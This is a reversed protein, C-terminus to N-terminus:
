AHEPERDQPTPEAHLSENPNRVLALHKTRPRTNLDELVSYARSNKHLQTVEAEADNLNGFVIAQTPCAQQCATLVEGDQLIDTERDGAMYANRADIKAKAIRQTCYTCKEMVGRMRVTVEPNFVMAKIANISNEPQADPMGLWPMPFRDGPSTSHFDFYNFRRVKYPCNNSCYRTGICRNYVMTNLGETDHVTAAVPCVQECPANECHVCLMPQFVLEPNPDDAAGKFYRDIRIWHMERSVQVQPKGVVPINNESQCAVVCANCGICATMDVAMGWAHPENFQHPPEFLQLSYNGHGTKHAAQPNHQYKDFTTERIIYGSSGKEGVRKQKGYLGVEDIIHHEQTIALSYTQGIKEVQAGAANWQSGSTRLQCTNFGVRSGINGAVTRGYGLPLGIVGRPQGPLVFAVIEMARGHVSLRLMDGRGVGLEQADGPSILAANDWTLKTLPDPLEQLWGNNAFRGDYVSYDLQFRLEMGQAAQNPPAVNLAQLAPAPVPQYGSNAILGDHLAQRFAADDLSGHTRRIIDMGATSDDGSLLALLEPVSLGNYLPEILPQQLTITGDYSRGDGWSELYHARPVHWNALMSTENRYLSLHISNPLRSLAAAFELDAPADYAPNGGLMLLTQVNGGTMSEHLARINELHTPRDDAPLLVVTNGIAGLQSNIALALAHVEAPLHSGASVIGASGAQRLDNAAADVWMQEAQTLGTPTAAGAVGLRSALTLAIPLLRSPRVPLREDAVGGTISLCSEAIYVRSMAGEDASRRRKVWDNAYRTHAPHRGVLDADLSVVVSARELRLYPRLPQGFALRAGKQENDHSIPEYEFWRAQPYRAMFRRRMEQVSPSSTSESLVAVGAGDGLLKGAASLFEERGTTRYTEGQRHVIARSRDPDYLELVSAQAFTDASGYLDTVRSSPHLANGEIKIPRGDYSNALLGYAFGGLEMMTAFYKSTGPIRGTPNTSQPVIQEEPWRRCGSLTLGALAMSASMLKLFSRRSTGTIEEPNYGPFEKAVQELVEPSEALQELSRWYKPGTIHHEVQSM